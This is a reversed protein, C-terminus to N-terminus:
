GWLLRCLLLVEELVQMCHSLELEMTMNGGQSIRMKHFVRLCLSAHESAVIVLPGARHKFALASGVVEHLVKGPYVSSGVPLAVAPFGQLPSTSSLLLSSTGSSSGVGFEASHM